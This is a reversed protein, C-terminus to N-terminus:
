LRFGGTAHVRCRRGKFGRPMSPLDTGRARTGKGPDRINLAGVTRDTLPNSM